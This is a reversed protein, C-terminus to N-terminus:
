TLRIMDPTFLKLLVDLLEVTANLPISIGICHVNDAKELIICICM